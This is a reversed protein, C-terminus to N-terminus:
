AKTPLTLHTYSVTSPTIADQYINAVEDESMPLTIEVEIVNFKEKAAKRKWANLAFPYANNTIIVDSGEDISLGSIIMNLAETTNRVVQLETPTADILNALRALNSQKIEQWEDWVEYPARSSAYKILDLLHDSVQQPMVGASGSNLHIKSWNSIPFHSRVAEWDVGEGVRHIDKPFGLGVKTLLSSAGILSTSELFNRRTKLISM